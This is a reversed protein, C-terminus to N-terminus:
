GTQEPEFERRKMHFFSSLGMIQGTEIAIDFHGPLNKIYRLIGTM